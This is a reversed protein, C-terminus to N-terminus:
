TAPGGNSFPLHVDSSLPGQRWFSRYQTSHSTLSSYWVESYASHSQRLILNVLSYQQEQSLSTSTSTVYVTVVSVFSEDHTFWDDDSPALITTARGNFKGAAMALLGANFPVRLCLYKQMKDYVIKDLRPLRHQAATDHVSSYLSQYGHNAVGGM